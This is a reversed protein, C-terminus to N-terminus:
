SEIRDWAAELEDMPNDGNFFEYWENLFADMEEETYAQRPKRAMLFRRMKRVKGLKGM